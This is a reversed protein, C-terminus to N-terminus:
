TCVNFAIITKCYHCLVFYFDMDLAGKHEHWFDDVGNVPIPPIAAIVQVWVPRGFFECAPNQCLMDGWPRRMLSWGFQEPPAQNQCTYLV